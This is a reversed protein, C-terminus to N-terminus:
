PLSRTLVVLDTATPRFGMRRYLELARENGAQTNVLLRHARRRATWRMSDLVLAAGIGTGAHAPDTALRQLFGQTGARGTVAYAVVQGSRVAVRFRAKPTATLAEDLGDDDL